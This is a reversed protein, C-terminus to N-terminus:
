KLGEAAFFDVPDGRLLSQLGKRTDRRTVAQEAGVISKGGRRKRRVRQLNDDGAGRVIPHSLGKFQGRTAYKTEAFGNEAYSRSCFECSKCARQFFRKRM